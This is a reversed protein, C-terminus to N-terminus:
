LLGERRFSLQRGQGIILHDHLVIGLAAAAQKVEATMEVDARSPAPDGSPHNHVLILATAHLALARKVVERPYVPTHNVTGKAQAEDALLRNKSDLFLVRFQEIPERAIAAHLYGTLREWNNLVPRDQVEARLLHLAAAQAAKITAAAGPGVDEVETLARPDAALVGALSGFRAILAKAVPKTDKRPYNAFLLVELIEYDATAQAGHDLLRARIRERHGLHGPPSGAASAAPSAGAFLGAQAEALQPKRAM